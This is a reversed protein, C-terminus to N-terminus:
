WKDLIAGSKQPDIDAPWITQENYTSGEFRTPRLLTLELNTGRLNAKMLSAGKLIAGSLNAERLNTGNFNVGSLDAGSLDAGSLDAAMLNAGMLKAKKLKAESLNASTLDAGELITTEAYVKASILYLGEEQRLSELNARWLNANVLDAESLNAGSLNAEHLYARRLNTQRLDAKQLNAWPLYADRLDADVLSVINNERMILGSEYLFRILIGKRERKIRRLVTLTWARAVHAVEQGEGTQSAQRLGKDILLISMQELYAQLTAEQANDEAIKRDEEIRQEAIRRDEEIRQNAIAQENRREAQSFLLGGAALVLPILLLDLWDWITKQRDVLQEATLPPTFNSYGTWHHTLDRWIAGVLLTIGLVAVIVWLTQRRSRKRTEESPDIM